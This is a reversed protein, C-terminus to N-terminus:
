KNKNPLTILNQHSYCLSTTQLRTMHWLGIAASWKCTENSLHLNVLWGCHLVGPQTLMILEATDSISQPTHSASNIGPTPRHCFRSFKHYDRIFLYTIISLCNGYVSTVKLSTSIMFLRKWAWLTERPSGQHLCINRFDSPFLAIEKSLGLWKRTQLWDVQGVLSCMYLISTILAKEAHHVLALLVMNTSQENTQWNTRPWYM